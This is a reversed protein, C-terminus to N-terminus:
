LTTAGILGGGSQGYDVIRGDEVEIWGQLVNAFRFRDDLRWRELESLDHLTDPLPEDYHAIGLEFPLKMSGTIAESPIWSIAIVSSEIRVTEGGVGLAGRKRSRGVHHAEVAM